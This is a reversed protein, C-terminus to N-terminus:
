DAEKAFNEISFDEVRIEADSENRQDPNKRGNLLDNRIFKFRRNLAKMFTLGKTQKTDKVSVYVFEVLFLAFSITVGLCLLYFVGAVTDLDLTVKEGIGSASCVTAGAAWKEWLTDIFGEERFKLLYTDILAEYPSNKPLGFAYEFSQFEEGVSFIDCDGRLNYALVPSEDIFVFYGQRVTEVADNLGQLKVGEHVLRSYSSDMHTKLLTEPHRSGIVGWQYTDQALLDLVTKLSIGLNSLTLSATLNATYMSTVILMFTWWTMLLFRGSICHPLAGITQGVLGTSMLWLSNYFSVDESRDDEEVKEILCEYTNTSQMSCQKKKMEDRRTTCETCSCTIVAHLKAGYKGYPSFKGLCCILGVLIFYTLLVMSWVLPDFPSLFFFKNGTGSEGKVVAKIGADMFPFSYDIVSKRASNTSLDIAIIDTKDALLDGIMGNWEKTTENMAGFKLDAPPIYEYTFSLEEALRVVMDNVMGSWCANGECEETSHFMFPKEEVSGLRLHRGALNKAFGTPVDTIGGFFQMDKTMQLGSSNTWTGVTTFKDDVFNVIDYSPENREGHNTFSIEGSIGMYRTQLISDLVTRGQNWRKSGSACEVDQRIEESVGRLAADVFGVVDYTLVTYSTLDEASGGNLIYSDKFKNYKSGRIQAPKIGILGEYFSLCNGNDEALYQPQSAIADTVIWVYEPGMLGLEQAKELVRKGFEAAANLVIVKVLSHRIDSLPGSIDTTTNDASFFILDKIRVNSDTILLNELKVMGNLGYSDATALISVEHWNNDKILSYIAESQYFDSASMRIIYERNKNWLFPDTASVAIHPIELPSFIDSQIATDSSDGKTIVVSVGDTVLQCCAEIMSQLNTDDYEVTVLTYSM